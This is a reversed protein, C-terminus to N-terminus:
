LSHHDINQNLDVVIEAYENKDLIEAAEHDKFRNKPNIYSWGEDYLLCTNSM